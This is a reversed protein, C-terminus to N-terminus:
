SEKEEVLIKLNEMTILNYNYDTAFMPKVRCTGLNASCWLIVNKYRSRRNKYFALKVNPTAFINTKMISDLSELDEKTVPLIHWGADIKDAIAKAGRLLNQDPHESTVYDTTKIIKM